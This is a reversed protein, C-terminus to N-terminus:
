APRQSKRYADLYADCYIAKNMLLEATIMANMLETDFVDMIASDLGHAMTMVLYTRSILEREQCRQSANSLGVVTHPAPDSLMAFQSLAEFVRVPQDQAVNVPLAIPDIYLRDPPIDHEMAAALIRMAIEVRGDTTSPVGSEDITLGILSADMEQALPLFKALDDAKGTSSNIMSGPGALKLGARVVAANPSDISLPAKTVERISEVLWVMAKEKEDTAPGVNVDLMTAGSALQRKALDQIVSRDGAVIAERVNKFMGNIREGIVLM